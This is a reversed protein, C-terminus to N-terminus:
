PEAGFTKQEVWQRLERALIDAILTNADARAHGVDLFLESLPQKTAAIQFAHVLDIVPVGRAEGFLHMEIQHALRTNTPDQGPGFQYLMPWSILLLEANHRRATELTEDLMGRFEEPSVRPKGSSPVVTKSKVTRWIARCLASRALGRPPRLAQLRHWHEEDSMGDWRTVDNWGFCAVVLDPQYRLGETELFRLGQFLSYAPVGANICEVKWGQPVRAQLRAELKEVFGAKYDLGYGFTCSDGLFLIRLERPPKPIAIEHDERLRQSNSIIGFFPYGDPPLVQNPKLRWFLEDDDEIVSIFQALHIEKLENANQEFRLTTTHPFAFRCVLEAILLSLALSGAALLLKGKLGPPSKAPPPTTM